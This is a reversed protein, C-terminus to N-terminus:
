IRRSLALVRLELVDITFDAGLSNSVEFAWYVSKVGRGLKIRGSRNADANQANLQYVRSTKSGTADTTIAKLQIVGDASYGLYASDVQAMRGDAIRTLATRAYAEINVADDTDGDLRFLGADNAGYLVGQLVALSNFDYPQYETIAKNTANMCVGLYPLGDLALSVTFDLHEELLGYFLTQTLVDGEVSIDDHLQVTMIALGLADAQTLMTDLLHAMAVYRGELAATTTAADTIDGDFVSLAVGAATFLEAVLGVAMHQTLTSDALRMADVLAVLKVVDGIIDDTVSMTDTQVAELLRALKDRASLTEYVDANILAQPFLAANFLAREAIGYVIDADLATSGSFTASVEALATDVYSTLYTGQAMAFYSVGSLLINLSRSQMGPLWGVGNDVGTEFAVGQIIPLASSSFGYVKESAISLMGPLVGSGSGTQPTFVVNDVGASLFTPLWGVAYGGSVQFGIGLIEPLNGVGVGTEFTNYDGTSVSAMLPLEGFGYNGAIDTGYGKVLPMVGIGTGITDPSWVLPDFIIPM